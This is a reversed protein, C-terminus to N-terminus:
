ELFVSSVRVPLGQVFQGVAAHFIVGTILIMVASIALLLGLDDVTIGNRIFHSILLCVVSM